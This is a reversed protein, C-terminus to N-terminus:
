KSSVFGSSVERFFPQYFITKKPRKYIRVGHVLDQHHRIDVVEFGNRNLFEEM